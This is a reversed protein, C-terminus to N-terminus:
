QEAKPLPFTRMSFPDSTIGDVMLKIYAKFKPLSLLDNASIMGKFQSSM